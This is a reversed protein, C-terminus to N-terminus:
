KDTVVWTQKWSFEVAGYSIWLTYTGATEPKFLFDATEGVGFFPSEKVMRQQQAPMDTGDKAIFKIMVPTSDKQMYINVDGAPEINMLRLRHTEGAHAYLTPQIFSGNLGVDQVSQPNPDKWGVVYFHDKQPNYVENERLVIIPGYLGACLQKIDNLHTHYIYSGPRMLTLKYTFKEGPLISPSSKGDSKSWDPVGDSWSDIDLGHWHISTPENMRNNVTIYTPQYQKLLLLPGPASITNTDPNFNPSFSFGKRACKGPLYENTYLEINKAEGKSILDSPGPKIQIGLVLGAMHNLHDPPDMEAMGPLRLDSTVHFSLHCHFLWNGPRSAVWKMSMTSRPQMNQTVLATEYGPKFISDTLMKGLSLVSYNFGHLHMPHTRISANIVRWRLTDGVSPTIRETFPWSKGNITLAELSGSKLLTTDVTTSFINMVWVHDPKSGGKPDIIFAGALQEEEPDNPSRKHTGLKIWYMYTGESGSEFNVEKTEGPMLLVSDKVLSPRKQLGYVTAASDKLNNHLVAHIITGTEVRILPAPISPAKGKEAVAVLRLGPRNNTELYFDSMEIELSLELKNNLKIGAPIQNDNAIVKPFDSPEDPYILRTNRIRPIDGLTYNLGPSCYILNKRKNNEKIPKIYSVSVILFFLFLLQLIINKGM